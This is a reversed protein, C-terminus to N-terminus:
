KLEERGGTFAWDKAPGAKTSRVGPTKETQFRVMLMSRANRWEGQTHINSWKVLEDRLVYFAKASYLYPLSRLVNEAWEYRDLIWGANMGHFHGAGGHSVSFDVTEGFNSRLLTQKEMDPADECLCARCYTEGAYKIVYGSVGCVVCDGRHYYARTNVVAKSLDGMEMAALMAPDYMTSLETELKARLGDRAEKLRMEARLKAEEAEKKERRLESEIRQKEERLERLHQREEDEEDKRDAVVESFDGVHLCSLRGELRLDDETIVVVRKLYEIFYIEKVVYRGCLEPAKDKWLITDGPRIYKLYTRNMKEEPTLPTLPTVPDALRDLPAPTDLAPILGLINKM